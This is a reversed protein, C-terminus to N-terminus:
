RSDARPAAGSADETEESGALPFFLDFRAGMGPSGTEVVEGGFGRMNKLVISLGFGMGQATKSFFLDFIKTKLEHKIAPGNDEFRVWLFRTADGELSAPLDDQGPRKITLTIRRDTQEELWNLANAVLEDLVEDVLDPDARVDPCKQSFFSIEVGRAKATALSRRVHPMIDMTLLNWDEKRSAISKFKRIHVKAKEINEAARRVAIRADEDDSDGLIESLQDVYTEVPFIANGISHTAQYALDQWKKAPDIGYKAELDKAAAVARQALEAAERYLEDVGKRQDTAQPDIDADAFEDATFYKRLLMPYRRVLSELDSRNWFTFRTTFFDSSIASIRQDLATWEEKSVNFRPFANSWIFYLSLVVKGESRRLKQTKALESMRPYAERMDKCWLQVAREDELGSGISILTLDFKDDRAKRLGLMSLETTNDLWVLHTLHDRLLLECCLNDHEAAGLRGWDITAVEEDDGEYDGLLLGHDLEDYRLLARFAARLQKTLDETGATTVEYEISFDCSTEFWPVQSAGHRRLAIIPKALARAVGLYFFTNPALRSIEAVI